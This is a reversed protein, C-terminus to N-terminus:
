GTGVGGAAVWAPDAGISQLIAVGALGLLTGWGAVKRMSRNNEANKKLRQALNNHARALATQQRMRHSNRQTAQELKKVSTARARHGEADVDSQPLGASVLAIFLIALPQKSM